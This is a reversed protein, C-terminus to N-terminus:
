GDDAYAGNTQSPPAVTQRALRRGRPRRVAAGVDDRQGTEALRGSGTAIGSATRVTGPGRAPEARFSCFLFSDTLRIFLHVLM